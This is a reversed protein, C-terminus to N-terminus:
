DELLKMDVPAVVAVGQKVDVVVVHRGPELLADTAELDDLRARIRFQREGSQLRVAGTEGSGVSMRVEGRLGILAAEGEITGSETRKLYGFVTSILAGSALGMGGAIAATLGPRGGAWVGHLIAGAAGFGFLAYVIARLSFLKAFDFGDADLDVDGELELVGDADVDGDLFDGFFSLALLCGGVVLCFIYATLM